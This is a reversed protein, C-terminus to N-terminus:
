NNNSKNIISGCYKCKESANKNLKAGCNPCHKEDNELSSKFILKYFMNLKYQKDGRIVKNDQTIYDYFSTKLYVTIILNNKEKNIDSIFIDKKTFDHMVNKQNKQKLTDLQMEYQNYLEDTLKNRLTELDFNMWAKQIEVFDNYRDNEFIDEKYDKIYKKIEDVPLKDAKSSKENELEEIEKDILKLAYTFYAIIAILSITLLLIAVEPEIPIYFSSGSSSGRSSSFGSSSSSSSSSSYDADFGSDAKVNPIYYIALTLIAVVTLFIIKTKKKM